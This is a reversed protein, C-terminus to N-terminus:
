KEQADHPELTRPLGSSDWGSCPFVAPLRVGRAFALLGALSFFIALM